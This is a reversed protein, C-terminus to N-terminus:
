PVIHALKTAPEASLRTCWIRCVVPAVQRDTDNWTHLIQHTEAPTLMPLDRITQNPNDTIATLLGARVLRATTGTM